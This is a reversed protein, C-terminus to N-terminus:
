EQLRLFARVASRADARAGNLGRERGPALGLAGPGQQWLGQQLPWAGQGLFVM